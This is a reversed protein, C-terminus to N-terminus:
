PKSILEPNDHINGVKECYQMETKRPSQASEFDWGLPEGFVCFAGNEFTIEYNIQGGFNVIDGSYLTSGNKDLLNTFQGVTEPNVEVISKGRIEGYKIFRQGSFSQILDGYAWYGTDLRKGRFIITM